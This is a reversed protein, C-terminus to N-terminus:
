GVAVPREPHKERLRAANYVAQMSWWLEPDFFLVIAHDPDRPVPLWTASLEPKIADATQSAARYLDAVSVWEGARKAGFLHVVGAELRALSVLDTCFNSLIDEEDM